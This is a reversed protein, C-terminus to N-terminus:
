LPLEIHTLVRNEEKNSISFIARNDYLLRLRERTNQVGLGEHGPKPQYRGTNEIDITLIQHNKGVKVHIDGGQKAHSIGHKVANEVLTQLMMPPVHCEQAAPDIDFRTSLREEFRIAEISLYDKVTQLEESLPITDQKGHYLSSRLLGSLRNISQKATDPHIDILTRISNLSNFLFHPNLQTKLNHFANEKMAAELRYREKEAELLKEWYQFLHYTLSWLLVYKSLNFFYGSVFGITFPIQKFIPFTYRDLPINVSTMILSILVVALIGRPILKFLPLDLWGMRILFMRYAHTLLIGLVYNVLANILLGFRFGDIAVYGILELMIFLFWGGIQCIWYLREKRIAAMPKLM